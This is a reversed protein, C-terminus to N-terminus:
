RVLTVDGQLRVERGPEYTVSAMFVFVAPALPEGRHTGDWGAAPDNTNFDRQEFVLAGWRDYIRLWQVPLNDKSFLTFRDNGTGSLPHFVNPVYINPELVIRVMDSATCGESDTVVVSYNTSSVPTATYRLGDATGADAPQWTSSVIPRSPTAELWVEDGEKVPERIRIIDLTVGLSDPQGIVIELPRNYCGTSDRAV